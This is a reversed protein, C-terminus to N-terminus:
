SEYFTLFLFSTLIHLLQLSISALKLTKLAELVMDLGDKRDSKTPYLPFPLTVRKPARIDRM